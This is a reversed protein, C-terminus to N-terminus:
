LNNHAMSLYGLKSLNGLSESICHKANTLSCLFKLDNSARTRLSNYYLLLQKLANLKHLSPVGGSLNNCELGLFTFQNLLGLAAIISRALNNEGVSLISLSSLNGLSSPIEEM